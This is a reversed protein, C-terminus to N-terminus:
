DGKMTKLQNLIKDAAIFPTTNGRMVEIVLEELRTKIKDWQWVRQRIKTEVLEIIEGRINQARRKNLNNSTQLFKRHESIKQYLEEIGTSETAITKVVPPDWENSKSRMELVMEIELALRDSGERDSKNVVFIDAIEMLGAKLTQISDGSEPVLVVITTYAAKAIDLEVQGVGITEIIVIDKGFADLLDCVEKTKSALGGLSGRTAMSRIFVGSDLFLESMRVRDGLIAGGSFPSTPDVAVIGVTLNDKRFRLALKEVLTSKGGGPPGTVGIRNARGIHSYITNLIESAEKGENEVITMLQGCARRDGALFQDILEKIKIM